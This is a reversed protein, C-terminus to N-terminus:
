EVGQRNEVAIIVEPVLRGELKLKIKALYDKGLDNQLKALEDKIKALDQDSKAPTKLNALSRLTYEPLTKYEIIDERLDQLFAMYSQIAPPPNELLTKINNLARSELSVVGPPLNKKDKIDKIKYYGEWFLDSLPLKKEDIACEVMPITNEFILDEINGADNLIGRAYFGLGKRIFVIIDHQNFQKATKIRPPLDAIRDIVEPHDKQISYYLNRVKTQFTEEEAKEPNQMIKKFLNSATPEEDPEFIKADEGLTNHILFMKDAAIKRSQVYEAGQM